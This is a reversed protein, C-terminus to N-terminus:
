TRPKLPHTADPDFNVTKQVPPETPSTAPSAIRSQDVAPKIEPEIKNSAAGSQELRYKLLVQTLELIHWPKPVFEAKNSALWEQGPSSFASTMMIFGPCGLNRIEQAVELGNTKGPLRIDLIFLDIVNCHDKIYLLADDGSIFQHLNATPEAATITVKLIDNLSLDDEVHVIHIAM